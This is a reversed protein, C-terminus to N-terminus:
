GNNGEKIAKEAEQKTKFVDEEYVQFVGGNKTKVVYLICVSDNLTSAMVKIIEGTYCGKLHDISNLDWYIYVTEGKDFKTEIQM